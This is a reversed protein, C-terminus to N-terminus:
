KNQRSTTNSAIYSILFGLRTINIYLFNPLESIMQISHGGNSALEKAIPYVHPM